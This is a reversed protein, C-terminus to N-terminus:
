RIGVGVGASITPYKQLTYDAHINLFALRLRVGGTLRAGASAASLSVPDTITTAIGGSSMEYNGKADLTVDSKNYGAAAYVTLIALKKSVIAQATMATAGLDVRQNNVADIVYGANFKTYGVLISLDFPLNKVGPIHQKIDHMIAGGIMEINAGNDTSMAPVYRVKVETGKFLGIGINAIPIPVGRVPLQDLGPIGGPGNLTGSLPAKFQYQPATEPGVITPVNGDSPSVLQLSQLQSNDVKFTQDATPITIVSLTVTADFGLFKHPRATNYWGQNLGNGIGQLLPSVYGNMLYNADDKSGQLLSNLQDLQARVPLAAFAMVAAIALLKKM